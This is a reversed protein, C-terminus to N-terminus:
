TEVFPKSELEKLQRKAHEQIKTSNLYEKDILSVFEYFRRLSDKDDKNKTLFYELVKLAVPILLGLIGSFM